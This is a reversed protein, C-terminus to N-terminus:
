RLIGSERNDLAGLIRGVSTVVGNNGIANSMHSASFYSDVQAMKTALNLGMKRLKDEKDALSLSAMTGLYDKFASDDDFLLKWAKLPNFNVDIPAHMINSVDTMGITVDIGLAQNNKNWGLNGVGRTISLQTIMCMRGHFRGKVFAHCFYPATYSQAGTTMPLAAALLIALPIYLNMYRSLLDGYPSRLEITYNAEQFSASSSDYHKPIHVNASGALALLGDLKVGTLVGRFVDGVAKYAGDIAAFGTNGNSFSFRASMASNSTSNITNGVDSDRVSNTFSENRQEGGGVAFSVWKSAMQADVQLSDFLRSAFSSKLDLDDSGEKSQWSARLDQAKDKEVGEAIMADYNKNAEEATPTDSSTTTDAAPTTGTPAPTSGLDSSLSKSMVDLPDYQKWQVDGYANTFYRQLYTEIGEGPGSDVSYPDNIYNKLRKSIDAPDGADQALNILKNRRIRELRSARTAMDYVDVGKGGEKFLRPAIKHAVNLYAATDAEQSEELGDYLGGKSFRRPTLGMNVAMSNAIFNVRNWFPGMSPAVYYYQSSPRGLAFSLVYGGIVVVSFPLSVIMAAVFAVSGAINGINFFISNGRGTKALTAAETSYFNTFFPVIGRFRVTGFTMTLIQLHDDIYESWVRGIGYSREGYSDVDTTKIAGVRMDATPTFQPPANICMHGGLLSDTAKTNASTYTAYLGMLDDGSNASLMFSKRIWERDRLATGNLNILTTSSM